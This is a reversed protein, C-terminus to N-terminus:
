YREYSKSREAACCYLGRDDSCCGEDKSCCLVRGARSCTTQHAGCPGRGDRAEWDSFSERDDEYDYRRGYAECCYPGSADECCGGAPCCISRSGSMCFDYHRPCLRSFDGFLVGHVLDRPGPPAPRVGGRTPGTCGAIALAAIALM